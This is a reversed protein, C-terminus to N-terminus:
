ATPSKMYPFLPMQTPPGAREIYRHVRKRNRSAAPAYYGYGMDMILDHSHAELSPEPLLEASSPRDGGATAVADGGVRDLM